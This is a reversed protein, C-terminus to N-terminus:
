KRTSIYRNQHDAYGLRPLYTYGGDPADAAHPNAVRDGVVHQWPTPDNM